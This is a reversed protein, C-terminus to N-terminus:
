RATPKEACRPGTKRNSPLQISLHRRKMGVPNQGGRGVADLSIGLAARAVGAADAPVTSAASPGCVQGAARRPPRRQALVSGPGDPMGMPSPRAATPGWSAVPAAVHGRVDGAAALDVLFRM